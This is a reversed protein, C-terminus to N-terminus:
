SQDGERFRMSTLGAEDIAVPVIHPALETVAERVRDVSDDSAIILVCGGGSAGLAKGGRAGAARARELISDILPTPISPHLARQHQWHEWVLEGLEDVDNACLEDAMARALAKMRSLAHLVRRNRDRYADLVATITDGSIRSEGTYVVICRREISERCERSLSLRRVRTDDAFTLALAGGYAAAYHDQRGGPVGLDQVEIARSAEALTARDIPDGRLAALAGAVAVGAASSGGLGAGLPFDSAIEITVGTVGARRVAAEALASDAARRTDISTEGDRASRLRVTAYRAIAMNCVFGGEEESYPPVDTWGGGFDLRTPARAFITTM